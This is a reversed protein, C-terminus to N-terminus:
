KRCVIQGDFSVNVYSYADSGKEPVIYRYYDEIKAFKRGYEEPRGIDFKEKGKRPVVIIHGNANVHIQALAANWKRNRDLYDVLGIIGSLWDQGAQTSLMGRYDSPLDIPIEGDIVPVSSTHNKQLPFIYGDIDSYWSGKGSVLRVVPKRESIMVHLIGDDTTYADSRLIAGKGNLIEEIRELDIEEIRKGSCNGYGATIFERVEDKTVFRKEGDGFEVCVGSCTLERHARSSRLDLASLVIAVAALVAVAIIHKWLKTFNM